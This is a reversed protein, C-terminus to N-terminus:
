AAPKGLAAVAAEVSAFVRFVRDFQSVQFVEAVVPTLAAIAIAGHQQAVQKAAIMLARLGVSSIYDVGAFDLVVPVGGTAPATCDSLQPALDAQFAKANAHDLRGIAAVVRVTGLSRVSLEM